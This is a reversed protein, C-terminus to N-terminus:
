NASTWWSIACSRLILSLRGDLGHGLLVHVPCLHMGLGGSGVDGCSDIEAIFAIM